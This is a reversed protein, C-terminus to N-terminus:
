HGSLEVLILVSGSLLMVSRDTTSIRASCGPGGEVELKMNPLGVVIGPRVTDPPGGPNFRDDLTQGKPVNHDTLHASNGGMPLQEMQTTSRDNAGRLGILRLAMEKKGSGSCDVRDFVLGLESANSTKLSAAATIHAYVASGALLTCGPFAVGNVINVWIEKGVKLHASDLEGSVKAQITSKMPIDIDANPHCQSQANAPAQSAPATASVVSKASSPQTSGPNAQASLGQLAAFQSFFFFFSAFVPVVAIRGVWPLRVISRCAVYM